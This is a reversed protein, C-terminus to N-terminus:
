ELVSANLCVFELADESAVLAKFDLVADKCSLNYLSNFAGCGDLYLLLFISRHSWCISIVIVEIPLNSITNSSPVRSLARSLFHCNEINTSM